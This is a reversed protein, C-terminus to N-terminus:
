NKIIDKSATSKFYLLSLGLVVIDFNYIRMVFYTLTSFILLCIFLIRDYKKTFFGIIFIAQTCFLLVYSLAAYIPHQILIKAISYCYHTPNLTALDSHQNILINAFNSPNFLLGNNIKSYASMVLIYILFYRAFEMSLLFNNKKQFCFPILAIFIASTSKVHACSYTELTMRQTFYFLLLALGFFSRYKSEFFCAFVFVMVGIDVLVCAWFQTIIFHPFGISCSLWYAYDVDPGKMPQGFAYILFASSHLRYFLLLIFYGFFLKAFTKESFQIQTIKTM